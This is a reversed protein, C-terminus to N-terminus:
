RPIEDFYNHHSVGNNKKRRIAHERDKTTEGDAIGDATRSIIFTM